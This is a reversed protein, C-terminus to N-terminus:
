TRGMCTQSQCTTFTVCMEVGSGPGRRHEWVLPALTGLVPFHAKGNLHKSNDHKSQHVLWLEMCVCGVHNRPLSYAQPNVKRCPKCNKAQLNHAHLMTHAKDVTNTVMWFKVLLIHAMSALLTCSSQALEM